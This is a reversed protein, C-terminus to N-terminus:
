RLGGMKGRCGTNTNCGSMEFPKNLEEFITGNILAIEPDYLNNWGQKVAYVMALPRTQSPTHPITQVGSNGAESNCSAYRRPGRLFNSFQDFDNQYAGKTERQM